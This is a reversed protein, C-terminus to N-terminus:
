IPKVDLVLVDETAWERKEYGWNIVKYLHLMPASLSHLYLGENDARTMGIQWGSERFVVITGPSVNEKLYDILRM